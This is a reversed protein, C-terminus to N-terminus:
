EPIRWTVNGTYTGMVRAGSTDTAPQFRAVDKIVSCTARDLGSHGTSATMECTDVRGNSGIVLRYSGSGENGRQLDRRPYDDTSIWGAPGNLPRASVAAITPTPSPTVTPGPAPPAVPFDLEGPNFVLPRNDPINPTVDVDVRSDFDFPRPPAVVRDRPQPSPQEVIVDPEPPPPIDLVVNSAELGKDPEPIVYTTVALGAVLGAGILAHIGITTTIAKVRDAGTVSANAYSM